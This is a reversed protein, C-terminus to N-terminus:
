PESVTHLSHEFVEPPQPLKVIGIGAVLAQRCLKAFAMDESDIVYKAVVYLESTPVLGIGAAQSGIVCKDTFQQPRGQPAVLRFGNGFLIGKAPASVEERALDEQINMSLQRLKEINVPKNEKGESEGILRGEDSEFVVDFESNDDQFGTASFGLTKLAEILSAELMKGSEFLLGNLQGCKQLEEEVAEKKKQAIEVQTEALLLKQRVSVEQKTSFEPADLWAPPPTVDSLSRLAKDLAVVQPLFRDAFESAKKTFKEGNPTFFEAQEFDIDPLLLLCGDSKTSPLIMGVTKEGTRTQICAAKTENFVVHYSCESEFESWFGSLLASHSQLLKMASGNTSFFKESIPVAKYNSYIDVHNITQRNRGTGSYSKEGTAVYLEEIECLFVIVTKGGDVAEKIERRWHECDEKLAFSTSDDLCRKGNYSTERYQGLYSGINPRFMVIDWDLLSAKSNLGKSTVHANAFSLGIAVISKV